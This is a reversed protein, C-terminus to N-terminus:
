DPIPADSLLLQMLQEFRNIGLKAYIHTLHKKFTNESICLKDPLDERLVGSKICSLIELEKNSLKYKRAFNNEMNEQAHLSNQNIFFKISLHDNVISFIKKDLDSFDGEAKDRFFSLGAYAINNYAVTSSICYHMHNPEMWNQMLGSHIRLNNDIIDTDRFVRSIPIDSYWAIYDINEFNDQYANMVEETLDVSHYDMAVMKNGAHKYYHYMSHSYFFLESLETTVHDLLHEMDSLYIAKIIKNIKEWQLNSLDM